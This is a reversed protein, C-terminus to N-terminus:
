EVKTNTWSPEVTGIRIQEAVFGDFDDHTVYRILLQRRWNGPLDPRGDLGGGKWM